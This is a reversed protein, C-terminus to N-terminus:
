EDSLSVAIAQMIDSRREGLRYALVARTPGAQPLDVISPVFRDGGDLRHCSACVAAIQGGQDNAAAAHASAALLIPSAAIALVLSRGLVKPTSFGARCAALMKCKSRWGRWAGVLVAVSPRRATMVRSPSRTEVRLRPWWGREL